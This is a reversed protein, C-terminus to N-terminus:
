PWRPTSAWCAGSVSATPNSSISTRRSRAVVAQAPAPGPGRRLGELERGIEFSREAIMFHRRVDHTRNSTGKIWFVQALTVVPGLENAYEAALASWTTAGGCCVPTSRARTPTPSIRGPGACMPSWTATRGGGTGERAAANFDRWLPPILLATFADLLTSKGSGSRGVFLFGDGAIPIDHLGSFTGWNFVQLRRLRFQQARAAADVDAFVDLQQMMGAGGRTAGRASAAALRDYLAALEKVEEPGFMLKLTASIEFRDTAAASPASSATRRPRRSPRGSANRSGPATPARAPSTSGFSSWWITWPSWPRSEAPTPTSWIHLASLALLVSDLFTLPSRRLLIPAELEGTDAQRTFAVQREQDVVLELFLDALRSRMLDQHQLLAPWLGPTVGARWPPDRCFSCWSM